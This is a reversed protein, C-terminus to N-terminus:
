SDHAVHKGKSPVALVLHRRYSNQGTIPRSPRIVLGRLSKSSMVFVVCCLFACTNFPDKDSFSSSTLRKQIHVHMSLDRRIKNRNQKLVHVSLLDRIKSWNEKM